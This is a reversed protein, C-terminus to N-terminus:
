SEGLRKRYFYRKHGAPYDDLTAFLTYGFRPYFEPAQFDYTDLSISDCGRARAEAEARGLLESGLGGRRLPEELWLVAVHLWNWESHGLLGGVIRGEADRVFLDLRRWHEHGAQARNYAALGLEVIDREAETANDALEIRYAANM